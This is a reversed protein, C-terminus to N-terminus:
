SLNDLSAIKIGYNQGRKAYGWGSYIVGGEDIHPAAHIVGILDTVFMPFSRHQGGCEEWIVYKASYGTRMGMLMLHAEFIEDPDRWEAVNMGVTDPRVGTWHLLNGYKDLPAKWTKKAM